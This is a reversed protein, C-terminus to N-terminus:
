VLKELVSEGITNEPMKLNFNEAITAGIAAFSNSTEMLGNQTM